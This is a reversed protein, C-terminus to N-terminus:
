ELSGRWFANAFRATRIAYPDWHSFGRAIQELEEVIWLTLRAFASVGALIFFKQNPDTVQDFEEIDLLYSANGYASIIAM